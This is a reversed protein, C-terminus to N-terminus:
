KKSLTAEEVVTMPAGAVSREDTFKINKTDTNDFTIRIKMPKGDPTNIDNITELTLKNGDLKGNMVFSGGMNDVGVTRYTKAGMDWGTMMHGKWTMATKGTGQTDEVDCDLWFKDATWKCAHKGKTALAPSGPAMAGEKTMGKLTLTGNLFALAKTEATPKPMQNMTATTTATTAKTTKTSTMTNPNDAMAVGMTMVTTAVAILKKM